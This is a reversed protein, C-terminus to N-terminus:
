SLSHTASIVRDPVPTRRGHAQWALFHSRSFTIAFIFFVILLHGTRYRVATGPNMIGLPYSAFLLWGLAFTGVFFGYVPLRATNRLLLLILVGVIVASELFSAMQLPGRLSEEFTPGFFGQLMGYPAKVFVDYKEVWFIERSNGYGFFHPVIRFAMADIKDRVLYLPVLSMLGVSAALAAKQRINRALVTSFYLFLLTPLYHVKFLFIGIASVIELLGIAARGVYLKVLYACVVGVFFVLLPEKAAVSSWLNFSPTLVLLALYRREANPVAMLFKYIGIFAITQFCLDILIPNGFLLAHFVAGLTETLITSYYRGDEILSGFAFDRSQDFITFYRKQYQNSDGLSTFRVVILEGVVSMACRYFFLLVFFIRWSRSM